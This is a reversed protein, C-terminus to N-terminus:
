HGLARARAVAAALAADVAGEFGAGTAADIGAATIGRYARMAEVVDGAGDVRGRLGEASGCVVSEVARRAIDEPLGFGRAANLMARALMAPYAPGSGSIATLIDLQDETQVRDETGFASLIRRTWSEDEPPLDDAVWPTFSQGDSAGGNPMARVIRAKPALARLSALRHVAMFSILLHDCPAFGSVPFDEPRVSLIITACEDQMQAVDRAWTVDPWADYAASPGSRNLLVLDSPAVVGRALLHLGLAQGLWGTAGIIGVKGM